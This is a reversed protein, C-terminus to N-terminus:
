ASNNNYCYVFKNKKYKKPKFHLQFSSSSKEKKRQVGQTKQQRPWTYRKKKRNDVQKKKSLGQNLSIIILTRTEIFKPRAASTLSLCEYLENSFCSNVSIGGVEEVQYWLSNFSSNACFFMYLYNIQFPFFILLCIM